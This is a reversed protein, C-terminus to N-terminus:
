SKLGVIFVCCDSVFVLWEDWVLCGVVGHKKNLKVVVGLGEPNGKVRRETQDGVGAAVLGGAALVGLFCDCLITCNPPQGQADLAKEGTVGERGWEVVLGVM